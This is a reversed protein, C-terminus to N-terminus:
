EVLIRYFRQAGSAQLDQLVIPFGTGTRNVGKRLVSWSSANVEDMFQVTYFQNTVTSFTLTVVSGTRTIFFVEPPTLVRLGAPLSFASGYANSVMVCYSGIDTTSVNTLVLTAATAAPLPTACNFFWQFSFPPTGGPGVTFAATQGPIVTVPQPQGAIFAPVGLTLQALRSTVAGSDNTVAVSYQGAQESQANTIVLTSETADALLNTENFYWQYAPSPWAASGIAFSATDGPSVNQDVPQSVIWPASFVNLTAVASTATGYPNSVVVSYLGNNTAQVNTLLLSFGTAGALPNEEDVLWQYSLPTAGTAAVTFTVDEGKNMTQSQPQGSILPPRMDVVTVTQSCVASNGCEDTAQWSRTVATTNGVPANTVTGVETVVVGRSLATLRAAFDMSLGNTKETWGAAEREWYSTRNDGVGPPSFLDLGASDGSALGSFQITWTLRDPLPVTLPVEAAIQFDEFRLTARPTAPISFPGSDFLLTGPAAYGGSALPGDNRYLRLRAQVDGVFGGANTGSGWFGVVIQGLHEVPENFSIEDGVELVGPDFRESLDNLSNDYAVSVVAGAAGGVPADFSWDEGLPVTKDPACVLAPPRTDLVTVTQSCSAQLGNTDSAVWTRTATFGAGCGTNTTTDLVNLTIDDGHTLPTDFDWPTGFELTRDAGCLLGPVNVFLVAVQSTASGAVNTVVAVYRGANTTQVNQVQLLSNTADPITAADFFWQYTLPTTGTATVNFAAGQGAQVAISSPQQTLSPREWVTLMAVASTVVGFANSVTAYYLGANDAQVNTLVLGPGAAASLLNTENFQWRYSLPAAGTVLVNFTAPDGSIVTRSELDGLIVPPRTDEVLVTQSCVMSNGCEDVAQWTRVIVTVNEAPGGSIVNLSVMVPAANSWGDSARYSFSDPGSYDNEPAYAFSGDLNLILTGHQVDTELVAALPDGDDDTDNALVGPANVDLVRGQNIDYADNAAVPATNTLPADPASRAAKVEIASIKPNEVGHEFGIDLQGDTVTVPLSLILAANSGVQGFVDLDDVRLEGELWVDFVRAGIAFAGPWVEAFHLNATYDGNTLSFSYTLESGAPVDYRESQYLGENITGSIASPVSYTQGTNFGFDASWLNSADDLFEGGGANVRVLATFEEAQTTAM